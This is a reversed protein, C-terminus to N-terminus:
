KWHQPGAGAQAQGFLQPISQKRPFPDGTIAQQHPFHRSTEVRSEVPTTWAFWFGGSVHSLDGKSSDDPLNELAQLPVAM